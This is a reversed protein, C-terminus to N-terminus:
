VGARALSSKGSGSPGVLAVLGHTRMAELTTAVENSRGFYVDRDAEKFRGLGRFPGIDEPPLARKFGELETGIRAIAIAAQEASSPRASRDPALLADVLRALLPPTDPAVALLLPAPARGDLVEGSLGGGTALAPLRGTLCQFLLAGLAYLDSAAVAPA